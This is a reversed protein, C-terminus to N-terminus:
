NRCVELVLLSVCPTISVSEQMTPALIQQDNSIILSPTVGVDIAQLVPEIASTLPSFLSSEKQPEVKLSAPLTPSTSSNSTADTESATSVISPSETVFAGTNMDLPAYFAATKNNLDATPAIPQRPFDTRSWAIILLAVFSLVAFAINVKTPRTVSKTWAEM